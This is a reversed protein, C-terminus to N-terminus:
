SPVHFEEAFAPPPYLACGQVQFGKAILNLSEKIWFGVFDDSLYIAVPCASGGSSNGFDGEFVSHSELKALEEILKPRSEVRQDILSGNQEFAGFRGGVYLMEVKRVAGLSAGEFVGGNTFAWEGLLKRPPKIRYLRVHNLFRRVGWLPFQDFGQNKYVLAGLMVPVPSKVDGGDDRGRNLEFGQNVLGGNANDVPLYKPDVHEFIFSWEECEFKDPGVRELGEVHLDIGRNGKLYGDILDGNRFTPSKISFEVPHQLGRPVDHPVKFVAKRCAM